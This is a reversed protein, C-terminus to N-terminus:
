EATTRLLQDVLQKTTNIKTELPWLCNLYIVYQEAESKDYSFGSYSLFKANSIGVGSELTVSFEVTKNPPIVFLLVNQPTATIKPGNVECILDNTYIQRIKDTSNSLKFRAIHDESVDSFKVSGLRRAFIQPDMIKRFENPNQITLEMPSHNVDSQYLLQRYLNIYLLVDKEDLFKTDLTIKYDKM